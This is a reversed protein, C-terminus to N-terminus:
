NEGIKGLQIIDDIDFDEIEEDEELELIELDEEIMQLDDEDEEEIDENDDYFAEITSLNLYGNKEVVNITFKEGILEMLDVEEDTVDWYSDIMMDMQNGEKKILYKGFIGEELEKFTAKILENGKNSMIEELSELIVDWQGMGIKRQKRVMLTKKEEVKKLKKKVTGTNVIQKRKMEQVELKKLLNNHEECSM